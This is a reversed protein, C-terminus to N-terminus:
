RKMAEQAAKKMVELPAEEGTWLEWSLAAQHVLMGRGNMGDCTLKRAAKLLKTEPPNYVLDVVLCSRPLLGPPFPLPDGTKMGLPTANVAVDAEALATEWAASGAEVAWAIMRPSQPTTGTKRPLLGGRPPVRGVSVSYTRRVNRNIQAVLLSARTRIPDAIVIGSAGELAAQMAVARGAGGAGALFVTREKLSLGKEEQLARIFGRGDTNHGVLRGSRFVVTNVAGILRAERSLGSLFPIAAMKHPITLNLGRFGLARCGLLAARLKVPPVAFALYIWDMGRARFAANHIAPSISHRVPFGLLGTLCPTHYRTGMECLGTITM